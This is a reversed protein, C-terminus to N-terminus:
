AEARREYLASIIKEHKNAMEQMLSTAGSVLRM